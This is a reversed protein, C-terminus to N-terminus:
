SLHRCVTAQPHLLFRLLLLAGDEQSHRRSSGDGWEGLTERLSQQAGEATSHARACLQWGGGGQIGLCHLCKRPRASDVAGGQQQGDSGPHQRRDGRPWASPAAGASTAPSRSVACFQPCVRAPERQGPAAGGGVKGAIPVSAATGHWRSSRHGTIRLSDRGSPRVVRWAEPSVTM